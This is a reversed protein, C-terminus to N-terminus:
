EVLVLEDDPLPAAIAPVAATPAELWAMQAETGVLVVPMAKPHVPAVVSNPECTLFSFLLHQGAVPAKKPGREGEWKRWIGAFAAPRDGPVEFWREKAPVERTDYEAFSSFPVLCRAEPKLWTRWYPSTLNRVNTVPKGGAVNPPPPFGWRMARWQLAGDERRTIVPGLRDPYIDRPLESIEEYGYVELELGLKKVDARYHNCM